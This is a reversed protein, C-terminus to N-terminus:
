DSKRSFRLMMSLRKLMKKARNGKQPPPKADIKSVELPVQWSHELLREELWNELSASPGHRKLTDSYYIWDENTPIGRPWCISCAGVKAHPWCKGLKSQRIPDLHEQTQAAYWRRLCERVFESRNPLMKAIKSTQEDLNISTMFKSTLIEGAM